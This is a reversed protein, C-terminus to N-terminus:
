RKGGLAIVSGGPTVTVGLRPVAINGDNGVTLVVRDTAAGSVPGVVLPKSWLAKGHVDFRAALLHDPPAGPKAAGAHGAQFLTVGPGADVAIAVPVDARSTWPLEVGEEGGFALTGQEDLLQVRAAGATAAAIVFGQHPWHLGALASCADAHLLPFDVLISGRADWHRAAIIKSPPDYWSLVVDGKATPVLVMETVGPVIGALPREKIWLSQGAGDLVLIFPNHDKGGSQFLLARGGGALPAAQVALPFSIPKGFHEQLLEEHPALAKDEALKRLTTRRAEAAPIPPGPDVAPAEAPEDAHSTPAETPEVASASSPAASEVAAASASPAAKDGADGGHSCALALTALGVLLTIGALPGSGLRSSRL